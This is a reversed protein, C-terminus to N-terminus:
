SVLDSFFLLWEITSALSGGRSAKKYNLIYIKNRIIKKKNELNKKGWFNLMISFFLLFYHTASLKLLGKGLNSLVM